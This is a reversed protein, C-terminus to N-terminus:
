CYFSSHALAINSVKKAEIKSMFYASFKWTKGKVPCCEFHYDRIHQKLQRSHQLRQRHTLVVADELLEFGCIRCIQLRSDIHANMMLTQYETTTWRQTATQAACIKLYARYEQNTWARKIGDSMLARTTLNQWRQTLHYCSHCGFHTYARNELRDDEHDGNIHHVALSDADSGILKIISENCFYCTYTMMDVSM